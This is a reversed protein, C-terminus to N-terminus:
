SLKVITNSIYKFLFVTSSLRNIGSMVAHKHLFWKESAPKVQIHSGLFLLNLIFIFYLITYRIIENCANCCASCAHCLRCCITTGQHVAESTSQRYCLCVCLLLLFILVFIFMVAAYSIHHETANDNVYIPAHVEKLAELHKDIVDFHHKNNEQMYVPVAM